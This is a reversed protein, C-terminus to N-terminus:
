SNARSPATKATPYSKSPVHLMVKAPASAARAPAVIFSVIMSLMSVALSATLGLRKM